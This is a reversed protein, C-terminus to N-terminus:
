YWSIPLPHLAPVPNPPQATSPPPLWSGFVVPGDLVGPKGNVVVLEETQQAWISSALYSSKEGSM